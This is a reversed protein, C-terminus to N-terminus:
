RPAKRELKFKRQQEPAPATSDILAQAQASGVTVAQGDIWVTARGDSRRVFGTISHRAIHSVVPVDPDGRRMRDLREREEPTHFLTGLEAGAAAPPAFAIALALLASARAIPM